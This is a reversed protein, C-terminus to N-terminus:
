SGWRLLPVPLAAGGFDLSESMVLEVLDLRPSVFPGGSLATRTDSTVVVEAKTLHVTLM